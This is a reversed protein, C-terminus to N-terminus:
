FLPSKYIGKEVLENFSKIVSEKDEAYTVGFWKDQTELMKVTVTDNKILNDVIIPLLYESKQPDAMGRLFVSFEKDLITLFETTMGWMNMSVHYKANIEKGNVSAGNETKIIDSTEQVGILLDNEDLQCIGRTVGGNESLTNELIFGAMCYHHQENSHEVLYDHIKVFAEKGYYDDANIVAFPEHILNKAALVAQGTGWPKTRGEPVSYGEPLDTIDQFAYEIEIKGKLSKELRDGIIERFDSEIDKRIIFVVKNFGAEAADYVSYDIILEKNPGVPTLQKIGCGFRSGMGAAMILLTTRKSMKCKEKKKNKFCNKLKSYTWYISGGIIGGLTNYFIDSFQFTGLRLLLQFIEIMLSFLFSLRMSTVFINGQFNYKKEMRDKIIWNFLFTFPIFLIINEIPETTFEGNQYLTWTGFINSLPNLWMNRNFLTKFLIMTVCFCFLFSKRFEIELRLKNLWIKWSNKWGHDQIYLIFFTAFISMIISFGFPQYLATLVNTFIRNIM